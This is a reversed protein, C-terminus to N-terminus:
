KGGLSNVLTRALSLLRSSIKLRGKEANDLNIDFRVKNEVLCFGIIGGSTVFRETEGVTLVPKGQIGSLVAPISKKESAGFFLVHCGQVDQAPKLHWIRIPRTGITKGNLSADLVGRFPDDGLTCYMLPSSGDPFADAPWDVFQAFHFLFAAKVEYEEAASDASLVAPWFLVFILLFCSSRPGCCSSDRM